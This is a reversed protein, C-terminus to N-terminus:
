VVAGGPAMREEGRSKRKEGGRREEARERREEGRALCGFDHLDGGRREERRLCGFITGGDEFFDNRWGKRKGKREKEKGEESRENGEQGDSV